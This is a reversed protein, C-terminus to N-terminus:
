LDSGYPAFPEVAPDATVLPTATVMRKMLKECESVAVRIAIARKDAPANKLKRINEFQKNVYAFGTKIRDDLIPDKEAVLDSFATGRAGEVGGLYSNEIGKMRNIIEAYPDIMDWYKIHNEDREALEEVTPILEELVSTSEQILEQLPVSLSFYRSQEDGSNKFEWAYSSHQKMSAKELIIKKDEPMNDTGVWAAQFDVGEELMAGTVAVLYNLETTTLDEIKRPKGHRFLLYSATYLGRTSATEDRLSAPDTKLKGARVKGLAHEILVVDAPWIALQKHYDYFAAPGYHFIVSRNFYALVKHWAKITKEMATVSKKTRLNQAAKDLAFISDVLHELTAIVTNDTYSEIVQAAKQKFLFNDLKTNFGTGTSLLLAIAVVSVLIIYGAWPLFKRKM